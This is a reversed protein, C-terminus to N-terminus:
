KEEAGILRGTNAEVQVCRDDYLIIMGYDKEATVPLVCGVHELCWAAIAARAEDILDTPNVSAVRATFIRVDRGEAIWDKVRALMAPVPPGIAGAAGGGHMALTGDLDVGTWGSM